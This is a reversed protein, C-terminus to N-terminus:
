KVLCYILPCLEGVVHDSRCNQLVSLEREILTRVVPDATLAITKRAMLQGDRKHRVKHVMGFAGHGLEELVVLSRLSFDYM